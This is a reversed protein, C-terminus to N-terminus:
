YRRNRVRALRGASGCDKGSGAVLRYDRCITAVIADPDRTTTEYWQRPGGRRSCAQWSAVLQTVQSRGSPSVRTGDQCVVRLKKPGSINAERILDGITPKGRSRQPQDNLIAVGLGSFVARPELSSAEAYDEYVLVVRDARNALGRYVAPDSGEPVSFAQLQQGEADGRFVAVRDESRLPLPYACLLVGLSVYSKLRLM